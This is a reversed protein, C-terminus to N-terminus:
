DTRKSSPLEILIAAVQPLAARSQSGSILENVYNSSRKLLATRM